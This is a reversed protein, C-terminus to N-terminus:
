ITMANGKFECLYNKLTSCDGLKPIYTNDLYVCNCTTCSLTALNSGPSMKTFETSNIQRRGDSLWVNSGSAYMGTLSFFTTKLFIRLVFEKTFFKTYVYLLECSATILIPFESPFDRAFFSFQEQKV